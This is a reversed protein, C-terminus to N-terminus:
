RSTNNKQEGIVILQQNSGHCTILTISSKSSDRIVEVEGTKPVTYINTIEYRYSKKHYTLYIIDGIKVKYLNKFYVEKKGGNHGAIIVNGGLEDPTASTKLFILGEDLNSREDNKDYLHYALSIKPIEITAVIGEKEHEYPKNEEIPILPINSSMGAFFSMLMNFVMIIKYFM